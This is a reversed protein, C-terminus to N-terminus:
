FSANQPLIATNEALYPSTVDYDSEYVKFDYINIGLDDNWQLDDTIIVDLNQYKIAAMKAAMNSKSFFGLPPSHDGLSFNISVGLVILFAFFMKLQRPLM